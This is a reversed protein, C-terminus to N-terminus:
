DSLWTQSKIIGHVPIRWALISSHTAMEKELHDEGVSISDPDEANCAAEKGGSGGPFCSVLNIKLYRWIAPLNWEADGPLSCFHESTVMPVVGM